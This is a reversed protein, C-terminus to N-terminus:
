RLRVRAIRQKTRRATRLRPRESHCVTHGREDTLGSNRFFNWPFSGKNQLYM